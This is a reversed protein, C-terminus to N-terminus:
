AAVTGDRLLEKQELNLALDGPPAQGQLSSKKPGSLAPKEGRVPLFNGYAQLLPAM